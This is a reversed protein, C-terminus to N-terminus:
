ENRRWAKGERLEGPGKKFVQGVVSWKKGDRVLVAGCKDFPCYVQTGELVAKVGAPVPAGTAHKKVKGDKTLGTENIIREWIRKRCQPCFMLSDPINPPFPSEPPEYIAGPTKGRKPEKKPLVGKVISTFAAFATTIQGAMKEITSKDEPSIPSIPGSPHPPEGPARPAPRQVRVVKDQM